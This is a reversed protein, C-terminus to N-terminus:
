ETKNYAPLEITVCAGNPEQNSLQIQGAHEEIIKKVVPLGLGTGTPKDTIYPEFANQLISKSFSKGNNRVTLIIKEPTKQETQIIVCPASNDAAAEAANKFVNHLVQRIANSDAYIFLDEKALQASFTCASAEYLLLVEEILHNLELKAFNPTPSRAYNRFSEVMEQLASVQQVITNTSKNLLQEDTPTLKDRLKWALREASLQIPTLPNRIEHAFRKAVEGWAAEKQARVFATIDDFVFLLSNDNEEPLRTTKGLLIRMEDAANYTQELPKDQHEQQCFYSFLTSLEFHQPSKKQWQQPNKGILEKLSIELIKEASPNFTKLSGSFDFTVVGTSLSALVRELYHREAEIQARHQEDAEKAQALEQNMHNFLHALKGLEDKQEINIQQTFDGQATARASNALLLIPETFTRSFYLALTLALMIALLTAITLTILFFTQLGKQAFVLEAYKGWAAEILQADQAIHDPIKQRLFLLTNKEPLRIWINAFLQGQIQEAHSSSAHTNLANFTLKNIEPAPLQQPNNEAIPFLTNNEIKGIVLHEFTQAEKSHFVLNLPQKQQKTLTIQNKIILANEESQKVAYDIAQKSLNLSRELAQKTDNHFWSNIHHAIFQASVFLLFVAPLVTVLTFMSVLRRSIQSGFVRQKKDRFFLWIYYLTTGLLIISLVSAIGTLLWFYPAFISNNNTSLTLLYLVVFATITSIILFLRM